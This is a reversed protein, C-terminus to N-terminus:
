LWVTDRGPRLRPGIRTRASAHPDPSASRQVHRHPQRLVTGDGVGSAEMPRLRWHTLIVRQWGAGIWIRVSANRRRLPNKLWAQTTPTLAEGAGCPATPLLCSAAMFIFTSLNRRSKAMHHQHGLSFDIRTEDLHWCSYWSQRWFAQSSPWNSCQEVGPGEPM